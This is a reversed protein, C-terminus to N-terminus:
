QKESDVLTLKLSIKEDEDEFILVPKGAALTVKTVLPINKSMTVEKETGAPAGQVQARSKYTIYRNLNVQVEGGGSEFPNFTASFGITQPATGEQKDALRDILETSVSGGNITLKYRASKQGRSITLELQYNNTSVSAESRVVANLRTQFQQQASQGFSGTTLSFAFVLTVLFGKM